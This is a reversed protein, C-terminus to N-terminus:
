PLNPKSLREEQWVKPMKWYKWLQLFVETTVANKTKLSFKDTKDIDEELYLLLILCTCEQKTNGNLALIFLGETGTVVQIFLGNQGQWLWFLCGMRDRVCHKKRGQLMETNKKDWLCINELAKSINKKTYSYFNGQHWTLKVLTYINNSLSWAGTEKWMDNLPLSSPVSCSKM